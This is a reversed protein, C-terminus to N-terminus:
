LVWSILRRARDYEEPFVLVRVTGDVAPATTTRVRGNALLARVSRATAEDDVLAVARLLGYDDATPADPRAAPRRRRLLEM